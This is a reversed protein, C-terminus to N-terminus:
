FIFSMLYTSKLERETMKIMMPTNIVTSERLLSIISKGLIKRGMNSLIMLEVKLHSIEL